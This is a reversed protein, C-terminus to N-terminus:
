KKLKSVMEIQKAVSEMQKKTEDASYTLAKGDKSLASSAKAKQMMSCSKLADTAPQQLAKVKEVNESQAKIRVQLEKLQALADTASLAEGKGNTVSVPKGDADTKVDILKIADSIKLSEDYTDFSKTNFDDIAQVGVKAPREMKEQATAAQQAVFLMVTAMATGLLLKKIM